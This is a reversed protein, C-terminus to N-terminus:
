SRRKAGYILWAGFLIMPLSLLQGMSAGLWLTGLYTDPERFFEVFIRALGYGIFFTGALMGPYVSMATRTFLIRMLIFLAAGELGAEYLQSPHRGVPGGGPFIIAWSIETPRGYLEGNIFNAIRGLFLGIPTICGALDGVTFMSKKYRLAFAVIALSVGVLGGHFSMGGEWVKFISLPDALYAAPKYFLVYGLRGGLIVGIMGWFILEEVEARDLPPGKPWYKKAVLRNLYMWSLLFGGLYALAYWRIQFFGLDIFVPDIEPFPIATSIM